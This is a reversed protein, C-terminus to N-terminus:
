ELHFQGNLALDHAHPGPSAFLFCFLLRRLLGESLYGANNMPTRSSVASVARSVPARPPLPSAGGDEATGTGSRLLPCAGLLLIGTGM